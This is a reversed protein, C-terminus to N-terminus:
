HSWSGCSSIFTVEVCEVSWWCCMWYKSVCLALEMVAGMNVWVHKIRHFNGWSERATRSLMREQRREQLLLHSVQTRVDGRWRKIICYLDYNKERLVKVVWDAFGRICPERKKCFDGPSRYISATKAHKRVEPQKTPKRQLNTFLHGLDSTNTKDKPFHWKDKGQPTVNTLKKFTM